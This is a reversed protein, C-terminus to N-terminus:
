LVNSIRLYYKIPYKCHLKIVSLCHVRFDVRVHGMRYFAAMFELILSAMITYLLIIFFPRRNVSSSVNTERSTQDSFFGLFLRFREWIHKRSSNKVAKKKNRTFIWFKKRNVEVLITKKGVHCWSCVVFLELYILEAAAAFINNLFYFFYIFLYLDDRFLAFLVRKIICLLTILSVSASFHLKTHPFRGINTQKDSTSLVATKKKHKTFINQFARKWRCYTRRQNRISVFIYWCGVCTNSLFLFFLLWKHCCCSEIQYETGM